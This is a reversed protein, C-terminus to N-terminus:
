LVAAASRLEKPCDSKDLAIRERPRAAGLLIGREVQKRAIRSLAMDEIGRLAAEPDYRAERLVIRRDELLAFAAFGPRAPQGVSGPNVIRTRGVRWVGARHTHGVVILDAHPFARAMRSLQEPTPEVYLDYDGPYAHIVAIHVQDVTREIEPPLSRLFAHSSPSITLATWRRTERAAFEFGPPLVHQRGFAIADDEDGRVCIASRARLWDIVSDPDSGFGVLDGACVITDAVPLAQLAALNAHVDAILLTRM